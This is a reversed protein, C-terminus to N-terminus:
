FLRITAPASKKDTRVEVRISKSKGVSCVVEGEFRGEGRAGRGWRRWCVKLDLLSTTSHSAVLAGAAVLGFSAPINHPRLLAWYAALNPQRSGDASISNGEPSPGATESITAATLAATTEMTSALNGNSLLARNDDTDIPLTTAAWKNQHLREKTHHHQGQKQWPAWTTRPRSTYVEMKCSFLPDSQRAPTTGSAPLPRRYYCRVHRDSNNSNNNKSSGRFRLGHSLTLLTAALLLPLLSSLTPSVVM